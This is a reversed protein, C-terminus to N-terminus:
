NKVLGKKPKIWIEVKPDDTVNVYKQVLFPAMDEMGIGHGKLWTDFFYNNAKYLADEVLYNFNEAEFSCVYYNGAELKFQTYEALCQHDSSGGVFYQVKGPVIDKKFCDIVLGDTLLNPISMKQKHFEDWLEILTNVGVSNMEKSEVQRSIGTYYETEVISRYTVELVMDDVLLPVSEDVMTYYLSLDPKLFDTLILDKKRYDEPTVGYIEKFARTFTAHSSFGYELAIDAIRRDMMKLFPKANAVRRAKIYENVTKGVLRNFLKQFYYISLYSVKALEEITLKEKINEEAYDISNQIAEWAHM